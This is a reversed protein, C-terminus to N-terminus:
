KAGAAKAIAARYQELCASLDFTGAHDIVDQETEVVPGADDFRVDEWGLEHCMAYFDAEDMVCPNPAYEDNTIIRITNM